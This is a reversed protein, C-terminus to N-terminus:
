GNFTRFRWLEAGTNKNLCYLYTDGGLLFLKDQDICVTSRISGFTGFTWKSKGTVLDIAYLGSDLSAVYVTNGDIVPSSIVPGTTKFQWALKPQKDFDKVNQTIANGALILSLLIFCTKM